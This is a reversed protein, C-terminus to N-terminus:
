DGLGCHGETVGDVIVRTLWGTWPSGTLWGTWPSGRDIVWHGPDAMGDATARTLWGTWLSGRDIVRDVMFPTVTMLAWPHQWHRTHIEHKVDRPLSVGWRGDGQPRLPRVQTISLRRSDLTFPMERGM